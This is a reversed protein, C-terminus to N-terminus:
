DSQKRPAQSSTWSSSLISASLHDGQVGLVTLRNVERRVALLGFNATCSAGPANFRMVPHYTETPDLDCFCAALHDGNRTFFVECRTTNEAAPAHLIGCGVVDGECFSPGHGVAAERAGHWFQGSDSMYLYSPSGASAAEVTSFGIGIVGQVDM